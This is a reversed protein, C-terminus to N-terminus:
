AYPANKWIRVEEIWGSFHDTAAVDASTWKAGISTRTGGGNGTPANGKYIGDIYLGPMM